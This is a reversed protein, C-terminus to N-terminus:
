ARLSTPMASRLEAEMNMHQPAYRWATLGHWYNVISRARLCKRWLQRYFSKKAAAICREGALYAMRDLQTRLPTPAVKAGRLRAARMEGVMVRAPESTLRAPPCGRYPEINNGNWLCDLLHRTDEFKIAPVLAARALVHWEEDVCAFRALGAICLLVRRLMRPTTEYWNDTLEPGEQSWGQLIELACGCHDHPCAAFCGLVLRTAAEPSGHADPRLWTMGGQVGRRPLCLSTVSYFGRVLETMCATACEQAGPQMTALGMHEGIRMLAGLEHDWWPDDWGDDEDEEDLPVQGVLRNACAVFTVMAARVRLPDLAIAAAILETWAAAWEPDKVSWLNACWEDDGARYGLRDPEGPRTPVIAMTTPARAASLARPRKPAPEADSM